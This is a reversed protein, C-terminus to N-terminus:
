KELVTESVLIYREFIHVVNENFNVKTHTNTVTQGNGANQSHTHTHTNTQTNASHFYSFTTHAVNKHIFIVRNQNSSTRITANLIM